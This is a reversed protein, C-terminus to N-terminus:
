YLDVEAISARGTTAQTRREMAPTSQMGVNEYGSVAREAFPLARKM